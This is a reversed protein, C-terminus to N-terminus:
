EVEVVVNSSAISMMMSVYGAVLSM